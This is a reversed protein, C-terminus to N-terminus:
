LDHHSTTNVCTLTIRGVYLCMILRLCSTQSMVWELDLVDIESGTVVCDADKGISRAIDRVMRGAGDFVMALPLMRMVLARDHLEDM